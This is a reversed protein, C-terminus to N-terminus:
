CATDQSGTTSHRHSGLDGLRKFSWLTPVESLASNEIRIKRTYLKFGSCRSQLMFVWVCYNLLLALWTM